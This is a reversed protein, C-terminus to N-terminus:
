LEESLHKQGEFIPYFTYLGSTITARTRYIAVNQKNVKESGLLHPYCFLLIQNEHGKERSQYTKTGLNIDLM